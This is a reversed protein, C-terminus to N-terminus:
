GPMLQLGCLEEQMKYAFKKNEVRRRFDLWGEWLGKGFQEVVSGQTYSALNYVRDQLVVVNELDSSPGDKLQATQQEAGCAALTMFALIAIAILKM